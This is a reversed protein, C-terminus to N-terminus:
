RRDERTPIAVMVVTGGAPRSRVEFRAGILEARERMFQLGFNRRGRAAVTGVDFGRGDDRVEIIWEEGTMRSAVTVRSATAHKRVNQLAEQVVRLVVTQAADDIRESSANFMTEIPLGTLASMTAVIDDIAGELGLQDLLPPRLQAIFGRVNGLKQRLLDRLFRLETRALRIDQDIVREIYEVQFIANSLAQAPGDHVEQALRSREAEQAEVIRMQIDSPPSAEVESRDTILSADGRELFLWSSELNRQALDLKSLEAQHLGLEVGLSEVDARLTRDRADEAGAEAAAAAEGDPPETAAPRPEGATSSATRELADLDDRLSHWRALEDHYAERYRDRIARLTNASYGLAEKAEAHLGDFRGDRGEPSPRATDM